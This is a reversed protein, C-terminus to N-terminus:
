RLGGIIMGVCLGVVLCVVATMYTMSRIREQVTRPLEDWEPAMRDPDLPPDASRGIAQM